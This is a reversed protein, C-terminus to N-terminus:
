VELIKVFPFHHDLYSVSPFGEWTTEKAEAIEVGELAATSAGPPNLEGPHKESFTGPGRKCLLLQFIRRWLPHSWGLIM